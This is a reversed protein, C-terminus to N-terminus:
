SDPFGCVKSVDKDGNKREPLYRCRQAGKELLEGREQIGAEPNPSRPKWGDKREAGSGVRAEQRLIAKRHPATKM